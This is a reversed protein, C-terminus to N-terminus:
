RAAGKASRPRVPGVGIAERLRDARARIERQEAGDIHDLNKFMMAMRNNGALARRHRILFDWYFTNFPCADDGTRRDVAYACGTCYNSMRDIYKGSAAYPKTGVVGGDAHMAMGLTNPLTVWDVGDVFMGLFWDSIERPHVGSILAFNGLVMLRPIHHAFGHELVEGVCHRLCNMDTEGSWYLAPLSGHQNLGNREGYGPGEHWYVGRIFERWGILQRVFAEVSEIPAAGRHYANLAADVCERPSLLKLNLPASLLSHYAFPEDTWMADEFTGFLPLRHEIFDHLAELAEKRTVPWAFADISGPLDPLREEVLDVVARTIADPGFRRPRPPKPSPGSRPFPSRNEKDYNWQGGVPRGDKTLLVGLDKRQRRYFFEMVLEQRGRAWESFEDLATLFHEDPVQHVEIRDSLGGLVGAVRHEGPQVCVIRECGLHEIARLIEGEITQTNAPDDLTVYRVRWGDDALGVAYHRMASLFLVTRQRHSPVHRSEGEVEMMLVADREKDLARLAPHDPHLQDGFIVALSHARSPAPGLRDNFRGPRM